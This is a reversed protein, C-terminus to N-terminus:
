KEKVKVLKLLMGLTQRSYQGSGMLNDNNDDSTGDGDSNNDNAEIGSAVISHSDKFDSFWESKLVDLSLLIHSFDFPLNLCSLLSQIDISRNLWGHTLFQLAFNFM